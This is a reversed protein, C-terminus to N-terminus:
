DGSVASTGQSDDAGPVDTSTTDPVDNAEPLDASDDDQDDAQSEDATAQDAAVTGSGQVDDAGPVDATAAAPIAMQGDGTGQVAPTSDAAGVAVIPARHQTTPSAYAAVSGAVALCGVAFITALARIM